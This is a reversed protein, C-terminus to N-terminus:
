QSKTAQVPHEKTGAGVPLVLGELEAPFLSELAQYAAHHQATKKGRGIGTFKSGCFLEVFYTKHIKIL